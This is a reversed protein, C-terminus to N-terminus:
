HSSPAQTYEPRLARQSWYRPLRHQQLAQLLRQEHATSYNITNLLSIVTAPLSVGIGVIGLAATVVGKTGSSTGVLISSGLLSGAGAALGVHSRHRRQAFLRHLAAATDPTAPSAALPAVPLSSVPSAPPAQQAHLWGPNFTLLLATLLLYIQVM